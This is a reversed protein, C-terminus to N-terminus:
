LGVKMCLEDITRRKGEVGSSNFILKYDFKAKIISKGPTLKFIKSNDQWSSYVYELTEDWTEVTKYEEDKVFRNYSDDHKITKDLKGGGEDVRKWESYHNDVNAYNIAM